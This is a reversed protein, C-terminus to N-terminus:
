LNEYHRELSECCYSNYYETYMELSISKFKEYSEYGAIYQILSCFLSAADGYSLTMITWKYQHQVILTEYIYKYLEFQDESLDFWEKSLLHKREVDNEGITEIDEVSDEMIMKDHFIGYIMQGIFGSIWDCLRIQINTASDAQLVEAFSYKLANSYTNEEQDITLRVNSINIHIEQLLNNLGDFNIFYAFDYKKKDEIVIETRSLINILQKIVEKEKIKRPITDIVRLICNLNKILLQCFNQTTNMDKVNYLAQLLEKNHYFFLIKTISYYFLNENVGDPLILNEFLRRVFYEVKSIMNIQLIPDIVELAEFLEKYFSMTNKNFSRIGYIYNKKSIVTSKLEQEDSLGFKKKQQKEFRQLIEVNSKLDSCRCGWFVGVYNELADERLANIQGKDNVLLKRDHFSEDFYFTYLDM